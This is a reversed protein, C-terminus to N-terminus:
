RIRAVFGSNRIRSNTCQMCSSHRSLSPWIESAVVVSNQPAPAVSCNMTISHASCASPKSRDCAEISCPTTATPMAMPATSAARKTESRPETLTSGIPM